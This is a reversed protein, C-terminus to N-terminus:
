HHTTNGGSKNSEDLLYTHHGGRGSCIKRHPTGWGGIYIQTNAVFTEIKSELCLMFEPLNYSELYLWM